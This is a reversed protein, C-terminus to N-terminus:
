EDQFKDFLTEGKDSAEEIMAKAEPETMGEFKVFYMWAPVKGQVVYNWWRARDDELNYVLDEFECATQYGSVPITGNATGTAYLIYLIRHIVGDHNKGDLITRFSEITHLTRRDDSEVQTATQIGRSEDFSFYGNSFGCKYGIISLYFNIASTREAVLMTPVHEQITGDADVGMELGQVFRPLKIGNQNAYQIVTQSVFTVHQSDEQEDGMKNLAIDLWRLEEICEAFVPVTLPSEKDIANAYPNRWYVFLPYELGRVEVEPLIDKWEDVKELSIESGIRNKDESKFAKSSIKYVREGNVDEFRHYEAKTYYRNGKKIYSFFVAALVDGNTNTDTIIFYDPDLFEIGQGDTKIMMGCTACSEEQKEQLANLVEDFKKKLADNGDIEVNVNFLTLNAIERCIVNSFRTPRITGDMSWTPIGSRMSKYLDLATQMESSRSVEIGFIDKVENVGFMRNFVAKIKQILGM